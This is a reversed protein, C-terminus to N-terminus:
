MCPHSGLMSHNKGLRIEAVKTLLEGEAGIVRCSYYGEDKAEFSNFILKSRNEGPMENGNKLWYYELDERDDIGCSLM